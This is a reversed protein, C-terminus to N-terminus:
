KATNKHKVKQITNGDMGPESELQQIYGGDRSIYNVIDDGYQARRTIIPKRPPAVPKGGITETQANQRKVYAILEGVTEIMVGKAESVDRGTQVAGVINNALTDLQEFGTTFGYKHLIGDVIQRANPAKGSLQKAAIIIQSYIENGILMASNPDALVRQQQRTAQQQRAEQQEQVTAQPDDEATLDVVQELPPM